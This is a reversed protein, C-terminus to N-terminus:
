LNKALAKILAATEPNSLLKTLVALASATDETNPAAGVPQGGKREHIPEKGYFYKEILEANNQQGDNLVHSYQETVMSALAHGSDGQVAKIDGGNLKLKYTISSHRLSHFVVPPLDYRSILNRFHESIAGGEIPNGFAGCIVLNYDKYQSGLEEKQRNQKEKWDVLMKAASMPLYVKRISSRTKPKKLVMVTKGRSRTPPFEFIVDKSDLDKLISKDVRQMEKNIIIYPYGTQMATGSIDVCDWTLGMLEGLRLTCSFALNICLRLQEDECVELARNLDDMTWIARERKEVKPCTANKCPNKELLEWKVGQKFCCSLLKHIERILQPSVKGAKPDYVSKGNQKPTIKDTKLLDRYYQEVVRVNIDSLKMNGLAPIIYNDFLSVNSKYTSLAWKSKGYLEIYEAILEGVTLCEKVTFIGQTKKYEIEARRKEAEAKTRYSEWKQKKGGIDDTYSYVVCYRKGRKVISAM